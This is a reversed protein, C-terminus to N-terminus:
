STIVCRTTAGPSIACNPFGSRTPLFRVDVVLDADVPLGYKFGFSVVTARLEPMGELPGGETFGAEIARRLEHV